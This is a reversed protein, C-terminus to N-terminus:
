APEGEQALDESEGNHIGVQEAIRRLLEDEDLPKLFYGMGGARM